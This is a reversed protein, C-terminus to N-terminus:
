RAGQAECAAVELLMLGTAVFSAALVWAFSAILDPTPGFLAVVFTAISLGALLLLALGTDIAAAIGTWRRISSGRSAATAAILLVARCGLWGAILYLTPVFATAPGLLLILGALTTVGGALVAPARATARRSAAIMEIVGAGLLLSGILLSAHGQALLPLLLAAAGLLLILWGAVLTVRARRNDSSTM